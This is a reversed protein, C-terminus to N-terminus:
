YLKLTSLGTEIQFVDYILWDSYFLFYLFGSLEELTNEEDTYAM